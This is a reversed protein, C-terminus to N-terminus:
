KCETKPAPFSPHGHEQWKGDVCVWNDEGSLLRASIIFIIFFLIFIAIKYILKKDSFKLNSLYRFIISYLLM